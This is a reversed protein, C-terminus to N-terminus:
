AYIRALTHARELLNVYKINAKEYKVFIINNIEDSVTIDNRILEITKWIPDQKRRLTMMIFDTEAMMSEFGDTYKIVM